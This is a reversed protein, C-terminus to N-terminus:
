LVGMVRRRNAALRADEERSAAEAARRDKEARWAQKIDAPASSGGAKM